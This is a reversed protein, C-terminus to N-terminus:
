ASSEGSKWPGPSARAWTTSNKVMALAVVSDSRILVITGRLKYRWVQLAVVLALAELPGQSAAEGFPVGLFDALGQTVKAKLAAIPEFSFQSSTATALVAGLGLPSAHAVVLFEPQQKVLPERRM